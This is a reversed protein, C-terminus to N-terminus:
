IRNLPLSATRASGAPRRCGALETTRECACAKDCPHNHCPLQLCQAADQLAAHPANASGPVACRGAAGPRCLM